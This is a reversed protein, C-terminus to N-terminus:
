LPSSHGIHRSSYLHCKRPSQKGKSLFVPLLIKVHPMLCSISMYIVALETYFIGSSLSSVWFTHVDFLFPSYPQIEAWVLIGKEPIMGEPENSVICLYCILSILEHTLHFPISWPLYIFKNGSLCNNKGHTVARM